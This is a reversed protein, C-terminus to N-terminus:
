WAYQEGFRDCWARANANWLEAQQLAAVVVASPASGIVGHAPKAAEDLPVVATFPGTLAALLALVRPPAALSGAFATVEHQLSLYQSPQPRPVCRAAAAQAQAVVEARRRELDELLPGESPGGPLAQLAKRVQSWPLSVSNRPFVFFRFVRWEFAHVSAFLFLGPSISLWLLLPKPFALLCPAAVDYCGATKMSVEARAGVELKELKCDCTVARLGM